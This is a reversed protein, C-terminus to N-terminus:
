QFRWYISIKRNDKHTKREMSILFAIASFLHDATARCVPHAAARQFHSVM